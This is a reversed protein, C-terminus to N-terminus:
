SRWYKEGGEEELKNLCIEEGDEESRYNIALIVNFEEV